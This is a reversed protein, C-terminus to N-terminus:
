GEQATKSNNRDLPPWAYGSKFYPHRPETPPRGYKIRLQMCFGILGFCTESRTPDNYTFDLLKRQTEVDAQPEIQYTVGSLHKHRILRKEIAEQLPYPIRPELRDGLLMLGDSLAESSDLLNVTGALISRNIETQDMKCLNQVRQLSADDNRCIDAIMGPVESTTRLEILSMTPSETTPDLANLMAEKVAPHDSKKLSGTLVHATRDPLGRMQALELLWQIGANSGKYAIAEILKTLDHLGCRIKVIVGKILDIGEQTDDTLAIICLCRELLYLDNPSNTLNGKILKNIIPVVVRGVANADLVFGHRLLRGLADVYSWHSYENPTALIELILDVTKQLGFSTLIVALCSLRSNIHNVKGGEARMQNIGAVIADVYEECKPHCAVSYTGCERAVFDTEPSHHWFSSDDKIVAEKLINYLGQAAQEEYHEEQLLDILVTDAEEPALECIAKVYHRDWVQHAGQCRPSLHNGKRINALGERRRRIDAQVLQLLLPLDQSRGFCSLAMALKAKLDGHFDDQELVTPLYGILLSRSKSRQDENLGRITSKSERWADRSLLGLIAKLEVLDQTNSYKDILIPILLSVHIERLVQDIRQCLKRLPESEKTYPRILERHLEIKRLFLNEAHKQGAGIVILDEIPWAKIKTEDLQMFNSLMENLTAEPVSQIHSKWQGGRLRGEAYHHVVWTNVWDIEEVAIIELAKSLLSSDDRDAKFIYNELANELLDIQRKPGIAPTYVTLRIQERPDAVHQQINDFYNVLREVIETPVKGPIHDKRILIEFVPDNCKSLEEFFQSRAGMWRLEGIADARVTADPDNEAFYRLVPFTEDDGERGLARVFRRRRREEWKEVRPLWDSGLSSLFFTRATHCTGWFVEEDPDELLPWIIDSFDESGTAFMAALACERHAQESCGYWERLFPEITNRVSPWVSPGCLRALEAAFIPDLSLTLEVLLRGLAVPDKPLPHAEDPHEFSDGIEEALLRLAEEWIPMNLIDSQFRTAQDAKTNEQISALQDLVVNAAYYEQFQQHVFSVSTTPFTTRKLLHHACLIDLIHQPERAATIQNHLKLESEVAAISSIAAMDLLSAKGEQTMKCALQSLYLGSRSSIPVGNLQVSHEPSGESKHIIHRFVAMRTRPIAANAEFLDVIEALIFPSRTIESIAKEAVILSLLEESRERKLKRELYDRRQSDSLKQLGFSNAGFLPVSISHDRTAVIIGAALYERGLRRIMGGATSMQEAPIENWGNLIFVLRSEKHARALSNASIDRGLFEPHQVIFDLIGQNSETWDPLSVLLPIVNEKSALIDLCVQVLTTTKGAGPSGLLIASNGKTIHESLSLHSYETGTIHGGGDLQRMNLDILVDSQNLSLSKWEQAINTAAERCDLVLTEIDTTKEHPCQLNLIRECIWENKPNLLNQVIDERTIVLLECQYERRLSKAWTDKWKRVTIPQPCYFVLLDVTLGREKITTVDDSIKKYTPTISCAVSLQRNQELFPHTLGDEGGDKLLETAVVTPWRQEALALAIRQFRFGEKYSILENLATEIHSRKINMVAM